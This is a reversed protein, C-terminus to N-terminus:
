GRWSRGGRGSRLVAATPTTGPTPEHVFLFNIWAEHTPLPFLPKKFPCQGLHPFGKVQLATIAKLELLSFTHTSAWERMFAASCARPLLTACVLLPQKRLSSRPSATNNSRTLQAAPAQRRGSLYLFHGLPGEQPSAADPPLGRAAIDKLISTLM